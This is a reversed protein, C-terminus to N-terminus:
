IGFVAKNNMVSIVKHKMEEMTKKPSESQFIASGAVFVNAGAEAAISITELSIGGDVEIDLNPYISRLERIKELCSSMFKQGGFGPEVTMILVMDVMSVFPKIDSLPTMPKLALGAKMGKSHILDICEIVNKAAEVHFMFLSAGAKAFDDM